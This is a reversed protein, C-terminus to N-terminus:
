FPKEEKMNLYEELLFDFIEQTLIPEFRDDLEIIVNHKKLIEARKELTQADKQLRDFENGAAIWNGYKSFFIIAL